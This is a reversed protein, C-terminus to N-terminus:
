THQGGSLDIDLMKGILRMQEHLAAKGPRKGENRIYFGLYYNYLFVAGSSAFDATKGCGEILERLFEIRNNDMSAVFRAATRNKRAFQRIYFDFDKGRQEQFVSLLLSALRERATAEASARDIFVQTTIELAIELMQEIFEDRNKFYYYYSGKTVGLDEAIREVRLNQEGGDAFRMLGALLWDRRERRKKSGQTAAKKPM